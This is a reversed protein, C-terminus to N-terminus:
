SPEPPTAVSSTVAWYPIGGFNFIERPPGPLLESRYLKGGAAGGCLGGLGGLGPLGGGTPGGGTSGGAAALHVVECFNLADISLVAFLRELTYLESLGYRAVLVTSPLVPM